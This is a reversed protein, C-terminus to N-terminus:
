EYKDYPECLMGWKFNIQGDIHLLVRDAERAFCGVLVDQKCTEHLANFSRASDDYKRRVYLLSYWHM